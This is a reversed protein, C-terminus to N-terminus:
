QELAKRIAQIWIGENAAYTGPKNNLKPVELGGGHHLGILNWKQNFV